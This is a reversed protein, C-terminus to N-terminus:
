PFSRSSAKSFSNFGSINSDGRLECITHTQLPQTADQQTLKAVAMSRGNKTSKVIDTALFDIPPFWLNGAKM